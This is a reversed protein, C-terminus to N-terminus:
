DVLGYLSNAPRPDTTNDVNFTGQFDFKLGILVGGLIDMTGATTPGTLTFAAAPAYIAGTITKNHNAQIQVNQNALRNQFISIGAYTGSTPPRLTVTCKDDFNISGTGTAGSTGTNYIMVGTGQVTTGPQSVQFGGGQFIYIGPQMILTAGNQVKIGGIYIGPNITMSVTAGSVTLTNASRIPMGTPDPPPVAALPDAVPKSGTNMPGTVGAAPVNAGGVINFMTATIKGGNDVHFASNDTSNIYVPANVINNIGKDHVHVSDAGSSQLAYVGSVQGTMVGQAVARATITLQSYGFIVSYSPDIPRSIIVEAYGPQNLFDGSKPPINVTVTGNTGDTIGNTKAMQLAATRANGQVDYGGNTPFEKYLVGAAALASADAAAQCDQREALMRGGDMALAVISILAALTLVLWIVM